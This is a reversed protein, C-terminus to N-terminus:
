PSNNFIIERFLDSYIEERSPIEKILLHLDENTMFYYEGDDAYLKMDQVPSINKDSLYFDYKKEPSRTIDAYPLWSLLPYELGTNHAFESIAKRAMEYSEFMLCAKSGNEKFAVHVNDNKPYSVVAFFVIGTFIAGSMLVKMSFKLKVIHRLAIIIPLFVIPAFYLINKHGGSLIFILYFASVFVLLRSIKDKLGICAIILPMGGTCIFFYKLFVNTNNARALYEELYEKKFGLVWCYLYNNYYGVIFYLIGIAGLFSFYKVVINKLFLREKKKNCVIWHSLFLFGILLPGTVITYSLFLASIIFLGEDRNILSSIGIVFFLFGLTSPVLMSIDVFYFNNSVYYFSILQYLFIQGILCLLVLFQDWINNVPIFSSLIFFIFFIFFVHSLRISTITNGLLVLFFMDVYDSVIGTEAVCIGQGLDLEELNGYSFIHTKVSEAFRYNESGDGSMDEKFYKGWFPILVTSVLIVGALLTIIIKNKSNPETFIIVKRNSGLFFLGSLCVFSVILLFYTRDITIHFILKFLISMLILSCLSLVFVHSFFIAYGKFQKRSVVTWIYGPLFMLIISSLFALSFNINRIGQDFIVVKNFSASNLKLLNLVSIAYMLIAAVVFCYLWRRNCVYIHRDTRRFM